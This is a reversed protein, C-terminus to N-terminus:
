SEQAWRWWRYNKKELERTSPFPYYLLTNQDGVCFGSRICRYMVHPFYTRNVTKTTKNKETLELM